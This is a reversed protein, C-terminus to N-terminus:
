LFSVKSESGRGIIKDIFQGVRMLIDTVDPQYAAPAFAADTVSFEAIASEIRIAKTNQNIEIVLFVIDVLVGLDAM